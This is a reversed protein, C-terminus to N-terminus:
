LSITGRQADYTGGLRTFTSGTCAYIAPTGGGSPPLSDAISLELVARKALPENSTITYGADIRVLGAPSTCPSPSTAPALTVKADRAFAGPPFYAHAERHTTFVDGGNLAVVTLPTTVDVFPAVNDVIVH